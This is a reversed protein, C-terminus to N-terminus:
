PNFFFGFLSKGVQGRIEGPGFIDTHVNVYGARDRLAKIFADFDNPDIGQAAPGIVNDATLTGEVKGDSPGPCAPALGSPDGGINTCLFVIVGGNVKSQAFHIHAQSIEGELQSYSLEYYLETEDHNLKGTFKGVGSTSVPPAEQGGNINARFSKQKLEAFVPSTPPLLLMGLFAIGTVMALLYTKIM